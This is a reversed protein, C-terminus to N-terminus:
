RLSAEVRAQHAAAIGSGGAVYERALRVQQPAPAVLGLERARSEVRAPSRLTATEVELQRVLSNLEARNARLADMRYGLHVAHVRLGVVTLAFAVILLAGTLAATM